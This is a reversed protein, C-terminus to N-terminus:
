SLRDKAQSLVMRLVEEAVQLLEESRIEFLCPLFQVDAHLMCVMHHFLQHIYYAAYSLIHKCSIYSNIYVSVFLSPTIM